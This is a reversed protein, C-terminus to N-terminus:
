QINQKNSLHDASIFKRQFSLRVQRISMYKGLYALPIFGLFLVTLMLINYAANGDNEIGYLRYIVPGLDPICATNASHSCDILKGDWENRMMSLFGYKIVSTWKMWALWGPIGNLNTFLGGFMIMPTGILFISAPAYEYRSIFCTAALGFTYGAMGLLVAIFIFVIIKQLENNLGIAFYFIVSFVLPAICNLPLNLTLNYVFYAPLNYYGDRYERIFTQRNAYFEPVTVVPVQMFLMVAAFYFLGAYDMIQMQQARSPLNWYAMIYLLAVVVAQLVKVSILDPNRFVNKAGRQMLFLWQTYFGAQVRKPYTNTAINPTKDHVSNREDIREELLQKSIPIISLLKAEKSNEWANWLMQLRQQVSYDLLSKSLGLNDTPDNAHANSGIINNSSCDSQVISSFEGICGPGIRNPMATAHQHYVNQDSYDVDIDLDNDHVHFIKLFLFDTPNSYIPCHLGVRGFYKVLDQTPGSYIVRGEAMFIINDILNYIEYSPQHLSVVVTKGNYTLDKLTQMLQYAALTDLGTTPEDLFLVTPDTVLEMAVRTRRKEGGSIGRLYSDGYITDSADNLGLTDIVQQVKADRESKKVIEPCRLLVSMTIAERVTMTPYIANDQSVFGSVSHVDSSEASKGNIYLSGYITGSNIQAALVHLLSTKGAGSPGIIVTLKGSELTGNVNYLVTKVSSKTQSKGPVTYTIHRFAIDIAKNRIAKYM